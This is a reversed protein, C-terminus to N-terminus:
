DGWNWPIRSALRLIEDELERAKALAESAAQALQPDCEALGALKEVARELRAIASLADTIDGLLRMMSEFSASEWACGGM